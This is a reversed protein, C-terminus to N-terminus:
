ASAKAPKTTAPKEHSARKIRVLMEGNTKDTTIPDGIEHHKGDVLIAATAYLTM